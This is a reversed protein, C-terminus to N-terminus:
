PAPHGGPEAQPMLPELIVWERDTLDSPYRKEEKEM